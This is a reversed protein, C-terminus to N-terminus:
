SSPSSSLRGVEDALADIAVRTRMPLYPTEPWIAHFETIHPPMEPFVRVLAGSSVRKHILWTPLWALGLGATAADAIADLDDFRMRTRPAIKDISADPVKLMWRQEWDGRCYTIAHHDKLDAPTAPVGKLSLYTPAAFVSMEEQALLRVMLGAGARIPGNRIALDFGDAVLDVPRDTFNLDLELDPHASALRTLVPAICLRGFLVPMTVRLRGRASRRGSELMAKATKLEDIARQCHEYYLKGDETLNQSRTTRHFLRSGLRLEVRSVAKGVASRSLNVIRAASSFGGAEVVTVFIEIDAFDDAM